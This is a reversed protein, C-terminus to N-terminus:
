AVCEQPKHGHVCGPHALQLARSAAAACAIETKGV